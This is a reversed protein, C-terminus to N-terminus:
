AMPKPPPECRSGEELQEEGEKFFEDLDFEESKPNTKPNTQPQQETQSDPQNEDTETSQALAAFGSLSIVGLGSIIHRWNIM